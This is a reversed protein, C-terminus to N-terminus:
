RQAGRHTDAIVQAAQEHTKETSIQFVTVLAAVMRLFSVPLEEDRYPMFSYQFGVGPTSNSSVREMELEPNLLQDSIVRVVRPHLETVQCNPLLTTLMFQANAESLQGERRPANGGSAHHTSIRLTVSPVHIM